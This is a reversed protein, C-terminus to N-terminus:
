RIRLELGNGKFPDHLITKRKDFSLQLLYEKELM